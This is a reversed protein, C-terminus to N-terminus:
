LEGGGILMYMADIWEKNNLKGLTEKISKDAIDSVSLGGLQPDSWREAITSLNEIKM